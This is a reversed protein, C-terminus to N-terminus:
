SSTRRFLEAVLSTQDRAPLTSHHVAKYHPNVKDDVMPAAAASNGSIVYGAFVMLAALTLSTLILKIKM